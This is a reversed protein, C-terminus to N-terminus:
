DFGVTTTGTLAPTAQLNAISQGTEQAAATLAATSTIGFWRGLWTGQTYPSPQPSPILWVDYLM